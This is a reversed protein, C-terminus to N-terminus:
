RARPRAPRPQPELLQALLGGALVAGILGAFPAQLPRPALPRFPGPLEPPGGVVILEPDVPRPVARGPRAAVVEVVLAGVPVPLEAVVGPVQRLLVERGLEGGPRVLRGVRAARAQLIGRAEHAAGVQGTVGAIGILGVERVGPVPIRARRGARLVRIPSTGGAALRARRQEALDGNVREQFVAHRLEVLQGLPHDLLDAGLFRVRQNVDHVRHRGRGHLPDQVLDVAVPVGILRM